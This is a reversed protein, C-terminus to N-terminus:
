PVITQGDVFPYHSGEAEKNLTNVLKINELILQSILARASHLDLAMAFALNDVLKEPPFAPWAEGHRLATTRGDAFQLITYKGDQTSCRFREGPQLKDEPVKTM